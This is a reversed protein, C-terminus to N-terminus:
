PRPPRASSRVGARKAIPYPHGIKSAILWYYGPKTGAIATSADGCAGGWFLAPSVGALILRAALVKLAGSRDQWEDLRFGQGALSETIQARSLAGQLCSVAQRERPEAAAAPNRAYLDALILRGGPRLVRRFEALAADVDGMLSLSCEVLVADLQCDGIPLQEGRAQALPPLPTRSRRTALLLMSADIGAAVLGHRDRLHEVTVGTGCGVDLVRAGPLLGSAALAEDTLALGGPRLAEGLAERITPDEYVSLAARGMM